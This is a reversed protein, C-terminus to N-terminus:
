NLMWFGVIEGFVTICVCVEDDVTICLWVCDEIEIVGKYTSVCGSANVTSKIGHTVDVGVVLFLVLFRM